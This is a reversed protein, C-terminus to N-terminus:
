SIKLKSLIQCILCILRFKPFVEIANSIVLYPKMQVRRQIWNDSHGENLVACTITYYTCKTHKEEKCRDGRKVNQKLGWTQSLSEALNHM